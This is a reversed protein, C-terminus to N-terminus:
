LIAGVRYMRVTILHGVLRAFNREQLHLPAARQCVIALVRLMVAINASKIYEKYSLKPM